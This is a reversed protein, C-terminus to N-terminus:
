PPTVIRFGIISSQTEPPFGQRSASRVAESASNYAGGRATRSTGQAPGAPDTAGSLGNQAYYKPDYWDATWEWVNGAMDCARVWSNGSPKNCVVDTHTLGSDRDVTNAVAYTDGWPYIPPNPSGTGRAAYEWQAETPLHGGRWAAYAEAEYWSINAHPQQSGSMNTEPSIPTPHSQLWQWGVTSWYSQTTYGGAQVFQAYDANTVVHEDIWFGTLCVKHAPQENAQAMRDTKPDSGMTFCGAPVWRQPLGKVDVQRSGASLDAM